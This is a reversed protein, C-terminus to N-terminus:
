KLNSLFINKDTKKFFNNREPHWMLGLINLNKHKFYEISNDKEHIALTKFNSSLKTIKYNHFSNVNSKFRKHNEFNIITHNKKIVHNNAKKLNAGFNNAIFQAGYCIGILPIKKKISRQLFFTDIKKRIKNNETKKFKHLDNGGALVILDLNININETLFYISNSPFCFKLFAILRSDICFENRNFIKRVSPVLGIKIKKM